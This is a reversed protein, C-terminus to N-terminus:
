WANGLLQLLCAPDAPETGQPVKLLNFVVESFEPEERALRRKPSFPAKLFLGPFGLGSGPFDTYPTCLLAEKVSDSTLVCAQSKWGM